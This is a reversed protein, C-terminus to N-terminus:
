LRLEVSRPRCPQGHRTNWQCLSWVYYTLAASLDVTKRPAGTILVLFCTVIHVARVDDNIVPLKLLLRRECASAWPLQPVQQTYYVHCCFFLWLWLFYLSRERRESIGSIPLLLTSLSVGLISVTPDLWLAHGSDWNKLVHDLLEVATHTHLPWAVRRLFLFLYGRLIHLIKMRHIVGFTFFDVANLLFCTPWPFVGCDLLYEISHRFMKM